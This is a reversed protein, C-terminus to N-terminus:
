EVDDQGVNFNRVRIMKESNFSKRRTVQKVSVKKKLSPRSVPSAKMGNETTFATQDGIASTKNNQQYEELYDLGYKDSSEEDIPDQDQIMEEAKRRMQVNESANRDRRFLEDEQLTMRRGKLIKESIHKSAKKPKIKFRYSNEGDSSESPCEFIKITHLDKKSESFKPTVKKNALKRDLQKISENELEIEVEFKAQKMSLAYAEDSMESIIRPDEYYPMGVCYDPIGQGIDLEKKTKSNQERSEIIVSVIYYFEKVVSLHFSYIVTSITVYIVIFMQLIISVILYNHLVTKKLSSVDEPPNILRDFSAYLVMGM